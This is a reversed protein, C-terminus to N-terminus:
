DWGDGDPLDFDAELVIESLSVRALCRSATAAHRDASSLDGLSRARVSEATLALGMMLDVYVTRAYPTPQHAVGPVLRDVCVDLRAAIEQAHADDFWPVLMSGVATGELELARRLEEWQEDNM